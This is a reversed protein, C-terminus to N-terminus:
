GSSRSGCVSRDASLQPAVAGSQREGGRGAGTGGEARAPLLRPHRHHHGARSRFLPLHDPLRFGQDHGPDAGGHTGLGRWFGGRHHRRCPRAQGSVMEACQRRLHRLRRRRRHGRRDHRSLLRQAHHGARQDGMRDRLSHRRDSCRPASRIQRRVMRRGAGALDRVARVAHVGVPDIRSGM